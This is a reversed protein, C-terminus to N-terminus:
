LIDQVAIGEIHLEAVNRDVDRLLIFFPIGVVVVPSDMSELLAFTSCLSGLSSHSDAASDRDSAQRCRRWRRSCASIRCSM